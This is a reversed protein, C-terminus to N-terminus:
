HFKYHEELGRRQEKSLHVEVCLHPTEAFAKFERCRYGSAIEFFWGKYTVRYLDTGIQQMGLVQFEATASVGDEDLSEGEVAFWKNGVYSHPSAARAFLDESSLTRFNNVIQETSKVNIVNMKLVGLYTIQRTTAANNQQSPHINFVKM